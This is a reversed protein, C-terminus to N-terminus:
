SSKLSSINFAEFSITGEEFLEAYMKKIHNFMGNLFSEQDPFEYFGLEERYPDYYRFHGPSCQYFLTHGDLNETARKRQGLMSIAGAKVHGTSDTSLTLQLNHKLNEIQYFPLKQSTNIKQISPHLITLNTIEQALQNKLNIKEETLSGFAKAMSNFAPTGKFRQSLAQTYQFFYVDKLSIKELLQDCSLQAHNVMSNLLARQEGYCSAGQQSIIWTSMYSRLEKELFESVQENTIQNPEVSPKAELAILKAALEELKPKHEVIAEQLIEANMSHQLPTTKRFQWNPYFLVNIQKAVMLVVPIMVGAFAGILIKLRTSTLSKTKTTALLIAGFVGYTFAMLTTDMMKKFRPNTAYFNQYSHYIKSSNNLVISFDM